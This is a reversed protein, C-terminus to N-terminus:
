AITKRKIVLIKNEKLYAKLELWTLLAVARLRVPEIM